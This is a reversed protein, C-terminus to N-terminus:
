GKDEKKIADFIKKYEDMEKGDTGDAFKSFWPHDLAEHVTCRRQPDLCLMQCILDKCENSVDDFYELPNKKKEEEEDSYDYDNNIEVFYDCESKDMIVRGSFLNEMDEDDGPQYPIVGCILTYMVVGM